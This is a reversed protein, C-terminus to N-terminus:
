QDILRVDTVFYETEGFITTPIGIHQEYILAVKKGLTANIKTAISDQRVTFYFKDVLTGPITVMALEGEWTKFLWGRKSFKQVYGAREGSSYSWTLVFATYLLFVVVPTALLLFLWRRWPLRKRPQSSTTAAM